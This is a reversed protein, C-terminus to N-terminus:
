KNETRDPTGSPQQPKETQKAKGAPHRSMSLVIAHERELRRLYWKMKIWRIM